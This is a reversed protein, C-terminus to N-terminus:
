RRCGEILPKPPAATEITTPRTIRLGGDRWEVASPDAAKLTVAEGTGSVGGVVGGKGEQFTFLAVLGDLARRIPTYRFQTKSGAEIRNPRKARDLVNSVALTYTGGERLATVTLAVISGDGGLKAARVTVGYDIAYNAGDEATRPDLPESFQIRLKTPDGAAFASVLQPPTTDPVPRVSVGVMAGNRDKCVLVGNSLTVHPYCTSRVVGDLRALERYEDKDPLAEVVAVKRSGFVIVKRDAATVLCSGHGYSGSGWLLKGTRLDVCQLKGNVLFARDRYIVPSGVKAHARTTWVPRAAKPTIEFLRSEEHNYASTILVRSGAIAPTAINCAFDTTWPATAVTEGEHGKDLRMVVLDRLTLVALCDVDGIRMPSMGGTHGALDTYQSAWRQEGTRKDFAMVTGDAANVEILLLDGLILPSTPYGHDRTGGGVDPRQRPKYVDYLGKKWVLKGQQTADWCHVHGDVSLTYLWGTDRDLTPTSSPGGYGGTDGTRVRGQYRCPYSQKWLERGTRADLCFVTDTGVPNGGRPGAWGMVYLKGEAIVPSTCGYGVKTEWLKKPPWGGPWGSSEASIGDRGPGRWQPWDTDVKGAAALATALATLLWTHLATTSASM